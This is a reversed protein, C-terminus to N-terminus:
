RAVTTPSNAETSLIAILGNELGAVLYRGEPTFTVCHVLAGSGFEFCREEKGAGTLDWLRVTGDWSATAASRGTPHLSLGRIHAQHGTLTRQDQTDLDWLHLGANPAEDVAALFRGDPSFAVDTFSTSGRVVLRPHGTTADVVRVTRDKGASAVLEGDPSFAVQRVEGAHEPWPPERRGSAVDWRNVTGDASGAAITRGDPSFNLYAWRPSYDALERVVRGSASDRLLLRGDLGGSAVLSGDPSFAISWIAGSHGVLVRVPPLGEEPRWRALDWLRLAWDAGGSAVTQGDPSVAVCLVAGVPGRPLQEEGTLANFVRVRDVAPAQTVYITRADPSCRFFAHRCRFPLPFTEKRGTAIDWRSFDLSAPERFTCRATLLTRGDPTFAIMGKGPTELRRLLNGSEVNWIVVADDDGAAIMTGDPSWAIAEFTQDDRRLTRIAQWGETDWIRCTGDLSATALRHGDLSFALQNIGKEHGQFHHLPQGEKDWVFLMGSADATVLRKGEPDFDASWIWIKHAELTQILQGSAVDWVRAIYHGSGSAVRSGDPSFVPRYAQYTHGYLTKLLKGGRTEFVLIEKDAPVALREGDRTTAMWHGFKPESYRFGGERDGLVALTGSPM